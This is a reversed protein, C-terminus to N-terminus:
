KSENKKFNNVYCLDDPVNGSDKSIEQLLKKVTALRGTGAPGTVFINYGAGKIGAGFRFAEVGRAQGIIETLPELENTTKFPLKKPDLKWRLDAVAVEKGAKKRPM